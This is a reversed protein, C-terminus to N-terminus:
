FCLMSPLFFVTFNFFFILLNVLFFLTMLRLYSFCHLVDEAVRYVSADVLCLKRRPKAESLTLHEAECELHPFRM